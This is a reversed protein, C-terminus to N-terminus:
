NCTTKTFLKKLSREQLVYNELDNWKELYKNVVKKSPKEIEM